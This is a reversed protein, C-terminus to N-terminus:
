GKRNKRDQRSKQKSFQKREKRKLDDLDRKFKKKYGPKVKKKNTKVKYKLQNTLHDDKNKRTQRM